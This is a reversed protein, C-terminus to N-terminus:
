KFFFRARDEDRMEGRVYERYLAYQVSYLQGARAANFSPYFLRRTHQSYNPQSYHLALSHFIIVDGGQVEILEGESMPILKAEKSSLARKEGLPTLLRRHYGPFFCVAGNQADASDIAVLVSCIDEPSFSQWWAYDQHLVYGHQGPPKFILKDKFLKVDDALLEKIPGILRPDEVVSRFVPSLDVVPDFREFTYEENMGTRFRTRLNNKDIIDRLTLLRRCEERWVELDKSTFVSRLVTYGKQHYDRIQEGTV